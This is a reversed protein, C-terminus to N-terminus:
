VPEATDGSVGKKGVIGGSNTEPVRVCGSNGSNGLEDGRKCACNVGPLLRNSCLSKRRLLRGGGGPLGFGSRESLGFRSPSGGGPRWIGWQTEVQRVGQRRHIRSDTAEAGGSSAAHRQCNGCNKSTGAVWTRLRSLASTSRGRWFLWCM